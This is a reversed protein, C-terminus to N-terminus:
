WSRRYDSPRRGTARRFSTAFHPGGRFGCRQAIMEVPLESTRLLTKAAEIRRAVVFAHPALGTARSFARSFHYRSLRAVDALDALKLDGALNAEIHDVVEALRRPALAYSSRASVAGLTSHESLLRGLFAEALVDLYLPDGAAKDNEALMAQFLGALLEDREGLREILTVGRGERDFIAEVGRRLRGPSIYFHAYEIAGETSWAYAAGAPVLTLAGVDFEAVRRGGDGTRRM